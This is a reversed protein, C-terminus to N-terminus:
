GRLRALRDAMAASFTGTFGSNTGALRLAPLAARTDASTYLLHGTGSLNGAFLTVGNANAANWYQTTVLQLGNEITITRGTTTVLNEVTAARAANGLAGVAGSNAVTFTIQTSNPVTAVYFGDFPAGAGSVVVLQGASFGHATAFTGSANAGSRGLTVALSAHNTPYGLLLGNGGLTLAAANSFTLSDPAFNTLNNQSPQNAPNVLFFLSDGNAPQVAGSWNGGDSWLSGNAGTWETPAALARLALVAGLVMSYRKLPNM